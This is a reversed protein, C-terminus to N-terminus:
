FSTKNLYFKNNMTIQQKTIQYRDDISVIKCLTNEEGERTIEVTVTSGPRAAAVIRPFDYAGLVRKNDFKVVVDGHKIGTKEAASGAFV